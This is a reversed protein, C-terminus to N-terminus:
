IPKRLLNAPFLQLISGVHLQRQIVEEIKPGVRGGQRWSRFSFPMFVMCAAILAAM